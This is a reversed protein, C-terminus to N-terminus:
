GLRESRMECAKYKFNKNNKLFRQQSKPPLNAINNCLSM